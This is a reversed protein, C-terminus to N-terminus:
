LLELAIQSWTELRQFMDDNKLDDVSLFRINCIADENSTVIDGDLEFLHVIGLHVAGVDNSDDNIVGIVRQTYSCAINLEEKIEREVGAMYAELDPHENKLDIPNIHGGIGLSGKDHLRSEGGKDGRTYHLVTNKYKFIGYPILQKHSPDLEAESRDMFFACNPALFNEMYNGPDSSVGEFYGTSEFIARPVVLVKEGNYKPMLIFSYFYNCAVIM